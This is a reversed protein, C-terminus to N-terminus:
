EAIESLHITQLVPLETAAIPVDNAPALLHCNAVGEVGLILASLRACLVDRGLALGTFQARLAAEVQECVEAYTYGPKVAIEASLDMTRSSPALVRLDVAIERKSELAAAVAACLEATPAGAQAAIYVDVTGIGRARGVAKAAAVDDFQLAEQEYFAANAGNPLRHYSELIRERLADDTEADSGGAFAEPNTCAVIGTPVASIVIVAGAIANGQEGPETAQAPVDVCSEGERLVADETTRFKIGADNMCVTGAPIEYDTPSSGGAFFRLLGSAPTASRRVIGRMQAHYDLYAGKATQPFSQELVWDAQSLLSQVEASLAYLRVMADCSDSPEFGARQTFNERMRQYIATIEEM